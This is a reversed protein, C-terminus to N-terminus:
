RKPNRSAGSSRVAGLPFFPQAAFVNVTYGIDALSQITILSLPRTQGAVATGNMLEDPFLSTRWHVDAVGAGGVNEVPVGSASAGGVAAYAAIAAAGTFRPDVTAGGTLLSIPWVRGFGLGHLMEHFVANDFTGDAIMAAADADDIQLASVVGTLTGRNLCPVTRVRVGGPGDIASVQTYFVIDQVTETLSALGVIGCSAFLDLGAVDADGIPGVVAIRVRALQALVRTQIDDAVTGAFRVTGRYGSTAQGSIFTFAGTITARVTQSGFNLGLRWTGGTAVGSANTGATTAGVITGGGSIVAFTVAANPVANGFADTVRVSLPTSVTGGPIATLTASSIPAVAVAQAAFATASITVPTLGAVSLTMTQTGAIVGLNWRNLVITGSFDTTPSAFAGSGGNSADATLAVGQVPADNQDLVQLVVNLSLPFGVTGSITQAGSKLVLKAAAGAVGSAIASKTVRGGATVTLVNVGPASGLTWQGLSATGTAGTATPANAITGGGGTVAVTLMAEPLPNGGQDLVRIVVPAPVATGAVASQNNGSVIEVSSAVAAPLQITEGCGAVAVAFAAIVFARM